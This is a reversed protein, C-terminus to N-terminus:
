TIGLIEWAKRINDISLQGPATRSDEDLAAFTFEAGFVPSLVRSIIGLKGMAFSVIRAGQAQKSVFRLITLNDNITTAHTVIKCIDSGAAKQSHLLKVLTEESPTGAHDHHSVIVEAGRAKSDKIIQDAYPHALDVDVFDFGLQAADLLMRKSELPNRRSRDTAIIRYNNKPIAKLLSSDKLNDLRFEVLDPDKGVIRETLEKLDNEHPIV